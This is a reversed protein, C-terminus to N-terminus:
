SGGDPSCPDETIMEDVSTLVDTASIYMSARFKYKSDLGEIGRNGMTLAEARKLADFSNTFFPSAGDLWPIVVYEDGKTTDCGEVLWVKKTKM